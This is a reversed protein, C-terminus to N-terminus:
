RNYYKPKFIDMPNFEQKAGGAMNLEVQELSGLLAGGAAALTDYKNLYDIGIIKRAEQWIRVHKDRRVHLRIYKKIQNFMLQKRDGAALSYGPQENMEGTIPDIGYILMGAFGRKEVHKWFGKINIEPFIGAGYYIYAWLSEEYYEDDTDPRARFDAVFRYTEWEEIPKSMSDIGLDREKFIACGGDSLGREDNMKSESRKLFNFPDNGGTYKGPFEPAWGDQTMVIRNAREPPLVESVYWNGDDEPVFVVKGMLDKNTDLLDLWEKPTYLNPHGEQEMYFSGREAVDPDGTVMKRKHNSIMEDLAKYDFGTDGSTVRFCDALYQPHLLSFSRYQAMSEPTGKALHSNLTEEIYRRSGYTNKIFAAQEPTPDDEVSEGYPGIFGELGDSARMFLTVLGSETQGSIDIRNEFMSQNVLDFFKDGGGVDMEAVTSPHLSFGHIKAGAGQALTLRVVRWRELINELLTKGEEDSLNAYQKKGDYFHKKATTAFNIRSRLQAGIARSQPNSMSLEAQPANSGNWMPKVWFPMKQWAPILKTKFHAGANDDDFSQIGGLVDFRTSIIAYIICLANHTAGDRRHKPYIVGFLTRKGRDIWKDDTTTTYAWYYFYFKRRDRDRYEPLGIEEMNWTTLFRYYWGVLYTPKGNIFCWYGYEYFYQQKKIWLIEDIYEHRRTSLTENIGELLKQGTVPNNKNLTASHVLSRAVMNELETLRAPKEPVKFKQDKAPLGFGDILHWEPSKPLMLKVPQLDPDKDNYWQYKDEDKYQMLIDPSVKDAYRMLAELKRM